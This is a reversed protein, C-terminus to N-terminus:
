SVNSSSEMVIGPLHCMNPALNIESALASNVAVTTEDSTEDSTHRKITPIPLLLTFSVHHLLFQLSSVEAYTSLRNSDKSFINSQLVIAAAAIALVSWREHNM